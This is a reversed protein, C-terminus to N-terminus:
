EFGGYSGVREIIVFSAGTVVLLVSGMATAPGLTRDSLYREVAIPMTYADSGEVLVVTANFEGVSIAVAFAAGAAVAPAILPLEVDLLARTRSAGLARASEVLRGDMSSLAPTVTRVVFPYAGVAHAAVIAVAGTVRVEYGLVDVGFVVTQLLGLGVVIGSVAFPLMALTGVLRASLTDRATALAVVVGMPVALALTGVAFLLSNRIALDPQTGVAVDRRALLFEYWRLTFEGGADTVSALLMSAVPGVFVVAVVLAYGAIATREPLDAAAIRRRPRPAVQRTAAQASEYHLYAYTLGLTVVAELVALAAAEQLRLSTIRDYLWVEVTALQLGGLALVIPFSMFTFIFVLLASTLVAPALQPLVVDRFARTPSAGLSRATEVVRADVGEWASAVVRVVLPANYFAHALVVIKLTFMLELTPLGVAALARNLPGNTGFMAAFGVAVMISPLVFPVLTLSRITRRGPFEYRALVYAGPLGLALSALTSLVAQYATFRFLGWYFPDTAVGRLAALSPRGDVVVAEVLVSAVPYYLLVVLLAATALGAVVFPLEARRLRGLRRRPRVM